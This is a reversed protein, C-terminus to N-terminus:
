SQWAEVRYIGGVHWFREPDIYEVTSSRECRLATYGPITLSADQLTNHVTGYAAWAESPWQRNSVVKVVYEASVGQGTFTYEDAASLRQVIVYPPQTSQPALAYYVAPTAATGGLKNYIASGMAMMDNAM